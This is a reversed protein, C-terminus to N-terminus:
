LNFTKSTNLVDITDVEIFSEVTHVEIRTGMNIPRVSLIDYKRGFLTEVPTEFVSSTETVIVICEDKTHYGAALAINERKMHQAVFLDEGSLTRM